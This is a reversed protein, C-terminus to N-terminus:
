RKQRRWDELSILAGSSADYLSVQGTFADIYFLLEAFVDRTHVGAFRIAYFATGKELRSDPSPRLAVTSLPVGGQDLISGIEKQIEPLNWVLDYAEEETLMRDKPPQHEAAQGPPIILVRSADAQVDPGTDSVTPAQQGYAEFYPEGYSLMIVIAVVCARVYRIIVPRASSM